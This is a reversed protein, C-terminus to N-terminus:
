FVKVELEGTFPSSSVDPETVLLRRPQLALEKGEGRKWRVGEKEREREGDRCEKEKEVWGDNDGTVERGGERGGEREKSRNFGVVLVPLFGFCFLMAVNGRGKRGLSWKCWSAFYMVSTETATPLDTEAIPSPMFPTLPRTPDSGDGTTASPSPPNRSGWAPGSSSPRGRYTSRPSPRVGRGRLRWPRRTRCAAPETRCDGSSPETQSRTSPTM